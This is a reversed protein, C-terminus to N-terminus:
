SLGTVQGPWHARLLMQGWLATVRWPRRPPRSPHLTWPLERALPPLGPTLIRVQM